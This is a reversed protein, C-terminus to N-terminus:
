CVFFNRGSEAESTEEVKWKRRKECKIHNSHFVFNIASLVNTGYLFAPLVKSMAKSLILSETM